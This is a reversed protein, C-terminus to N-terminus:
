PFVFLDHYGGHPILFSSESICYTPSGHAGFLMASFRSFFLFFVPQVGTHWAVPLFSRDWGVLTFLKLQVNWTIISVHKFRKASAIDYRRLDVERDRSERKM